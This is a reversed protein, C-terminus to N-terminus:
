WAQWLARLPRIVYPRSLGKEEEERAMLELTAFIPFGFLHADLKLQIRLTIDYGCRELQEQETWRTMNSRSELKQKVYSDRQVLSTMRSRSDLRGRKTEGCSYTNLGISPDRDQELGASMDLGTWDLKRLHLESTVIKTGSLVGPLASAANRGTSGPNRAAIMSDFVTIRCWAVCWICQGSWSQMAEKKMKNTFGWKSAGAPRAWIQINWPKLQVRESQM